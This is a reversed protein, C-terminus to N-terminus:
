RPQEHCCSVSRSSLIKRMMFNQRCLSVNAVVCSKLESVAINKAELLSRRFDALRRELREIQRLLDEFGAFWDAAIEVPAGSSKAQAKESMLSTSRPRLYFLLPIFFNWRVRRPVNQGEPVLETRDKRSLELADILAPCCGRSASIMIRVPVDM